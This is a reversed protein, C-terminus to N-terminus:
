HCFGPSKTSARLHPCSDPKDKKCNGTMNIKSLLPSNGMIEVVIVNLGLCIPFYPGPISNNSNDEFLKNKNVKPLLKSQMKETVFNILANVIQLRLIEHSQYLIKYKCHYILGRFLRDIIIGM